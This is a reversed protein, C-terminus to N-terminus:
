VNAGAERILREGYELLLRAREKGVRKSELYLQLAELPTIGEAGRPGLRSRREQEVEKTVAAVYYADALAKRIEGERVLGEREAAVKIQVRVIAGSIDARAIAGLASETPDLTTGEVRITVFRRATVPHLEYSRLRRGRPASEDIEVVYFGKEQGEDGFDITQLSGPYVAPVPYDTKQGNHMHGLAVYDFAPNAVTSENLVYDRGVLMSRESGAVAGSHALHGALIAPLDPDLKEAEAQLWGALIEQIRENIQDLSLNKAEDRSLLKSRRAWPLAVIQLPGSRTEIRHSEAQDAVTVNEVALTDFIEVATARGTAPPLDHNGAVLFVPVNAASLRKIRRAFERQHTQSPDRSKYADGCFLVLDIDGTLAYDVLEDLASLFDILRTSLGTDPDIRGYTEVGLHLDAFHLIRM